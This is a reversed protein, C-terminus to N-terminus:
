RKTFVDLSDDSLRAYRETSRPDSHGLMKRIHEMGIGAELADSAFSHKTGQYLSANTIGARAKAWRKYFAGHSWRKGSKPLVFLPARTLRGTWDVHRELWSRVDPHIPLVRERRNKTPGIPSDSNPGQVARLVRLRWPDRTRDVDAVDLARVEGPRLGMRSALLYPGRLPEEIQEIILDATARPIITPLVDPVEVVPFPPVAKLEGRKVWWVCAARVVGLYNRRSKPALGRKALDRDWDELAAYTIEDITRSQWWEIENREIRRYETATRQSRDGAEVLADIHDCFRGFARVVEARKSRPRYRDVVEALPEGRRVASEIAALIGEALVRGADGRFTVGELSSIRGHDRLDIVFRDGGHAAVWGLRRTPHNM